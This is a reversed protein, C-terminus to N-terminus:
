KPKLAHVRVSRVTDVVEAVQDPSVNLGKVLAQATPDSLICDVPFATEEVIRVDRFGAKKV